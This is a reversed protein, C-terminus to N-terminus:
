GDDPEPQPGPEPAPAPTPPTGEDPPPYPEPVVAPQPPTAEGPPPYPENPQRPTVMMTDQVSLLARRIREGAHELRTDLEGRLQAEREDLESLRARVGFEAHGDGRHVVEGLELLAARREAEVVALGSHIRRVEATAVARARWTELLSGARERADLSARTVPLSPRRRAVEVFAAFLLAALGLVILGFPWHGTVFLAIALVFLGAAVALLLAPPTVGFLRRESREFSIHAPGTQEPPTELQVTEGSGAVPTGCEACFRAGRPLDAGCGSCADAIARRSASM